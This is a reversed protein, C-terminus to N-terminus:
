GPAAPVEAAAREPPHDRRARGAVAEAAATDIGTIRGRAIAAHVLAAHALDPYPYEATYRAAGTTKVTGDVRDLPRGVALSRVGSPPASRAPATGPAQTM